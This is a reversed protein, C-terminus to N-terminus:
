AAAPTGGKRAATRAVLAGVTAALDTGEAELMRSIVSFPAFTWFICAELLWPRGEADIRFDYLSYDRCGLAGHLALAARELASLTPPALVAPCTTELSPMRWSRKTVAGSADTVVKDARERIPREPTVHYELVPLLRPSPDELVGVRVERGPVYDEVMAAGMELARDRAAPWDAPDRVLSLGISNDEADPKVIAPLDPCPTDAALPAAAPTAIGAAAAVAKTRSKSTALSLCAADPGLVPVGMVDELAARWSTMGRPCFMYPLCADTTAARDLAAGRPVPARPAGPQGWLTTGDPRVELTSVTSGPLRVTESHYTLSLEHAFRDTTAGILHLLHM